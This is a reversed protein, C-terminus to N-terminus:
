RSCLIPWGNNARWIQEGLKLIINRHMNSSFDLTNEIYNFAWKYPKLEPYNSLSLGATGKHAFTHERARNLLNKAMGSYIPRMGDREIVIDDSLLSKVLAEARSSINYNRCKKLEGENNTYESPPSSLRLLVELPTDTEVFYWGPQNPIDLHWQDDDLSIEKKLFRSEVISKLKEM